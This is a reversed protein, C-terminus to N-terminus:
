AQWMRKNAEALAESRGIGIDGYDRAQMQALLRRTRARELAQEIRGMTARGGTATDWPLRAAEALAAKHTVGIDARERATLDPLAQRTLWTRLVVRLVAVSHALVSGGAQVQTFRTMMLDSM